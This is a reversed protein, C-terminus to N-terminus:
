LESVNQYQKEPEANSCRLCIKTLEDPLRGEPLWYERTMLHYLMVGLAQIDTGVSEPSSADDMARVKSFGILKLTGDTAMLVNAPTLNRHILGQSHVCQMAKTLIEVIKCAERASFVNKQLIAQLAEGDVFERLIYPQGTYDGVQ